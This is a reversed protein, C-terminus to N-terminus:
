PVDAVEGEDTAAFFETRVPEAVTDSLRATADFAGPGTERAVRPLSWRNRSARDDQQRVWGCFWVSGVIFPLVLPYLLRRLRDGM